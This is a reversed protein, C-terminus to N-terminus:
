IVQRWNEKQELLEQALKQSGELDHHIAQGCSDLSAYPVSDASLIDNLISEYIHCVKDASGENLLILYFGTQCGMPAVSIFKKGLYKRFGALLLHEMSHLVQTTLFNKNPKAVRLDFSFVTDGLDGATHSNLRIYPPKLQQHDLEGLTHPDWGLATIDAM